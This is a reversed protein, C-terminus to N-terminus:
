ARSLVHLDIVNLLPRLGPMRPDAEGKAVALRLGAAAHKRNLDAVAGALPGAHLKASWRQHAEGDIETISTCARVLGRIGGRKREQKARQERVIRSLTGMVDLYAAESLRGVLAAPMPHEADGFMYLSTRM